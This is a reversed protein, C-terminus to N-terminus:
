TSPALLQQILTAVLWQECEDFTWGLDRTMTTFITHHTLAYAIGAPREVTLGPKLAGLTRLRNAAARSGTRHRAMGAAYAEAVTADATAGSALATMTAEPGLVSPRGPPGEHDVFDPHILEAAVGVDARNFLDEVVRRVLQLQDTSV